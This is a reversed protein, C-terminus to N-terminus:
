ERGPFTEKQYIFELLKGYAAYYNEIRGKEGVSQNNNSGRYQLFSFTGEDDCIPNAPHSLLNM